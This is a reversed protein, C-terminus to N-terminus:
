SGNAACAEGYALEVDDMPNFAARTPWPCRSGRLCVLAARAVAFALKCRLVNLVTSYNEGRKESWMSALHKVAMSMDPGMGGLSTMIMPTFDGDEIDRVRQEYERKRAQQQSRLLTLPDQDAYSRAYPYVVRFEFFANRMNSWFGRVRLDSRADDSVIASKHRMVEGSVAELPPEVQVDRFFKSAELAFAEKPQDHRMHIFGGRKCIQSHDLSYPQGCVCDRQLGQVRRHYRLCLLDRFDRKAKIAFGFKDLPLTTIINSAGKSCAFQLIRKLEPRAECLDDKRKQHRKEWKDKIHLVTKAHESADFDLECEGSLIKAQLNRSLLRSDSLRHSADMVPNHIGLGGYKEVNDIALGGHRRNQM